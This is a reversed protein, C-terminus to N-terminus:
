SWGYMRDAYERLMRTACFRPGNSQLSRRIMEVWRKPVGDADRENFMPVVEHELLDFLSQADRADQAQADADVDGGIAWGNGGDYAEAWWGDLVSLQLGGCLTSKMGSTGSAELPPRPLNVWVDCGAVLQLALSLDYDELFAVRGAVDPAGKMAFVRRVVDKGDADAPHAKGAFVFQLPQKGGILALARQPLRAILHLRKYTALRRAFGITLRETDFGDAPAAAYELPEGRRLRDSTARDRIFSILERRAACRAAWLEATPIRGVPDWTSANAARALWDAGLHRDLLERMPRCMWTAVHVGNTVHTIPVGEAARGPFLPQWMERAVQGHRRSVANASRCGRLALASMGSPQEPRAPDIRGLALFRERDGILDGVRGLMGLIESGSYTENGAPVPTHTTFIVRDRVAQLAEDFGGSRRSRENALLQVVGLAPHGENFHYASPEIGLAHLARVGGIGLLAYQALRLSRISEYLRATAWRAVESNGPLDSDLLYLPVRGVDVRWVQVAVDEAGIPVTVRLPEGDAATVLACPLQHPDIDSWYEHQLGSVDIRQHFYGLRYMLGVGVMPLGLDSAEKLIDGALVGLGGSYIPLSGHVGFEACCFAIPHGTSVSGERWPRARDARLVAALREVRQVYAADNAARELTARGADHLLRRPNFGVRSWRQPDLANFVGAGDAAWSWRYDYAIGALPHLALPLGQQLEIVARDIDHDGAFM